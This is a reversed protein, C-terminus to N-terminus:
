NITKGCWKCKKINNVIEFREDNTVYAHKEGLLFNTHETDVLCRGVKLYNECFWETIDQFNNRDWHTYDHLQYNNRMIATWTTGLLDGFEEYLIYIQTPYFTIKYQNFEIINGDFRNQKNYYIKFDKDKYKNLFKYTGESYKANYIQQKPNIQKIFDKTIM